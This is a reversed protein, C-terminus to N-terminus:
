KTTASAPDSCNEGDENYACVKYYYTTNSSVKNDVYSTTNSGVVDHYTLNSESSGRYIYFGEENNSNDTWNLAIKAKGRANAMLGTPAAPPETGGCSPTTASATTSYDSDGADNYARIRYWYQTEEALATDNYTNVNAGVTDIQTFNSGDTRREIEFGDENDSNDTWSLDIQDCAPADAYLNTPAAPPTSSQPNKILDFTFYFYGGQYLTSYVEGQEYYYEEVFFFFQESYTGVDIKWTNEETRTIWINFPRGETGRHASKSCVINHYTPDATQNQYNIDMNIYDHYHGFDGLKYPANFDMNTIDIDTAHIDISFFAYDESPHDVENMFDRMCFSYACNNCIDQQDYPPPFVCCPYGIDPDVFDYQSPDVYELSVGDFDVYRYNNASNSIKFGIHTIFDNDKKWPGALRNKKVTVEINDDQGSYIGGGDGYLMTTIGTPLQVAWTAEPPKVPKGKTIKAQAQTFSISILFLVAIVVGLIGFFSLKRIKRM